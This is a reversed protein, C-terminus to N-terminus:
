SKKKKQSNKWIYFVTTLIPVIIFIITAMLFYYQDHRRSYKNESYWNIGEFARDGFDIKIQSLILFVVLAIAFGLLYLRLIKDQTLYARYLGARNKLLFKRESRAFYIILALFTVGSLIVGIVFLLPEYKAVIYHAGEPIQLKMFYHSETQVKANDVYVNWGPYMTKKISISTRKYSYTVLSLKEPDDKLIKYKEVGIIKEVGPVGWLYVNEKNWLLKFKKDKRSLIDIYPKRGGRLAIANAANPATSSFELKYKKGNELVVDSMPISYFANDRFDRCEMSKKFLIREDQYLSVFFNCSNQRNYTATFIRVESFTNGKGLFDLVTPKQTIPFLHNVGSSVNIINSNLNYDSIVYSIGFERLANIEVRDVIGLHNRTPFAKRFATQFDAVGIADESQINTFGYALNINPPFNLNGVQLIAGKPIKYLQKVLEHAPYYSTTPQLNVYNYFLLVNQLLIALLIVFMSMKQMNRKLMFLFLIILIVTSYFYFSIYKFLQPLFKEAQGPFLNKGIIFSLTLLPVSVLLLVFLALFLRKYVKSNLRIGTINHAVVALLISIGFGVFGILRHNAVSNIIPLDSVLYFPFIKYVIGLLIVIGIAYIRVIELKFLRVSGFIVILLVFIGSFGGALEQFHTGDPLAKYYELHPAGLLLPFFNYFIGQIPLYYGAPGNFRNVMLLSHFVYEFFPFLLFASLLFGLLVFIFFLILNRTQKIRIISYIFHLIGAHFLTEPHGGTVGIFYVIALLLLYRNIKKGIRIRETIFLMLPFLIFVNTHPWLIWMVTFGAFFSLIAGCVSALKSINLVRLYIYTFGVMLVMKVFPIVNLALQTPLFYYFFNLPYFLGTQPNALFPVGAGNYPNWLPLEGMLIRSKAYIRWPEFQFVPDALLSNHVRIWKELTFAPFYNLIDVPLYIFNNSLLLFLIIFGIALFLFFKNIKM